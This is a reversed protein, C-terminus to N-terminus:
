ESPKEQSSSASDSQTIEVDMFPQLEECVYMEFGDIEHKDVSTVGIQRLMSFAEDLLRSKVSVETSQTRLLEAAADMPPERPAM